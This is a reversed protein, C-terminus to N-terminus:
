RQYSLLIELEKEHERPQMTHIMKTDEVVCRRRIVDSVPVFLKCTSTKINKQEWKDERHNM